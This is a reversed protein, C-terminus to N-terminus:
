LVYRFVAYYHCCSGLLCFIHFLEHFGFRQSINPKKIAYIIGGITYMVGGLVLYFIAGPQLSACLPKVAVISLWGMGVYMSTSLIRPMEIWFIKMIVGSIALSWIVIIFTWQWIGALGFLCFPTYSGAILVFIMAHDLKKLRVLINEKVNVMHYIGSATYLSILSLGFITISVIAKVTLSDNRGSIIFLLITGVFFLLAGGLHTYTNIPERVM